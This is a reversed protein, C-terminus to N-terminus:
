WGISEVEEVTTASIVLAKKTQYEAFLQAKRYVYDDTVAQLEAKTVAQETNDAMTWTITTGGQSLADFYDIAGQINERDTPSDVDFNNLPQAILSERTQKLEELKIQKIATLQPNRM